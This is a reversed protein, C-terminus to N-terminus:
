ARTTPCGPTECPTTVGVPRYTGCGPCAVMDEGGMEAAQSPRPAEAPPKAQERLKAEEAAKLKAEELRNYYRYGYYAAAIVSILLLYKLM